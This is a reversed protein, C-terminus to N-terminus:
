FVATYSSIHNSVSTPSALDIKFSICPGRTPVGRTSLEVWLECTWRVVLVLRWCGDDRVSGEFGMGIRERELVRFM